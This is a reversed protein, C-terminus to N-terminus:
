IDLRAAKPLYNLDQFNMELKDKLSKSILSAIDSPELYNESCYQLIADMYTIGSEVVMMEIHMSFENASQFMNEPALNEDSTDTQHLKQKLKKM